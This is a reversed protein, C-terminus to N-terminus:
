MLKLGGDYPIAKMEFKSGYRGPILNGFGVRVRVAEPFDLCDDNAESSVTWREPSHGM